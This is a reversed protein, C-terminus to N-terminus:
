SYLNAATVVMAAKVIVTVGIVGTLVDLMLSLVATAMNAAKGTSRVLRIVGVAILTYIFGQNFWRIDPSTTSLPTILIGYCGM